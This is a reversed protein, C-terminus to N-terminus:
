TNSMENLSERCNQVNTHIFFSVTHCRYLKGMECTMIPKTLAQQSICCTSWKARRDMDKDKQEPRKATKVLEHRKPITGGDCGM